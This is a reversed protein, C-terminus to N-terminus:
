ASGDRPKTARVAGYTMVGTDYAKLMLPGAYFFGLVEVGRTRALDRMMARGNDLHQIQTFAPDWSRAVNKTWQVHVVEAFGASTALREHEELSIFRAAVQHRMIQQVLLDEKPGLQGDRVCWTSLALRGGPRLLRMMERYFGARDEIHELVELAWVVDFSGDPFSNTMVDQQVFRTRDALGAEAARRTATTAQAASLTVGEVTCGLTRALHLAPGGVGCGVDLVRSGTPIEGFEVLETVLRQTASQRDAGPAQPDAGVDWFGHHVHEGWLDEYLDLTTDYYREVADTLKASTADSNVTALRGM